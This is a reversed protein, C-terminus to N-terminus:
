GEMHVDEDAAAAAPTHPSPMQRNADSMSSDVPGNNQKYLTNCWSEASDITRNLIDSIQTMMGLGERALVLAKNAAERSLSAPDNDSQVQRSPTQGMAVAFRAPLTVLHERVLDRANAPLSDSTYNSILNVIQHIAQSITIRLTDMREVLEHRNGGQVPQSAGAEANQGHETGRAAADYQDVTKQLEALSIAVYRNANRLRDLCFKLSRLSETKMAVGLGSASIMIKRPWPSDNGAQGDREAMETYAPSRYDDYAPLTDITSESLRREKSYPSYSLDSVSLRNLDEIEKEGLEAKRRKKKGVDGSETDSPYPRRPRRRGGGLIWRVSSDVGTKRGVTSVAKAVPGLYGELTEAGLKVRPDINKGRNYATTASTLINQSTTILYLLPEPPAQEHAMDQPPPSAVNFMSPTPTPAQSINRNLTTSTFDARLEGLAEAALRVDPDDLSVSGARRGYNRSPPTAYHEPDMRQPTEAPQAYSPSYYATFPNLSPWHRVPQLLAAPAAHLPEPSPQLPPFRQSQGGTVSSLSPLTTQHSGLATKDHQLQIPPLEAAPADPFVLLVSDHSVSRPPPSLSSSHHLAVPLPSARLQLNAPSDLVSPRLQTQISSRNTTVSAVSGAVHESADDGSSASPSAVGVM